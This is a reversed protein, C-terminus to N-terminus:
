YPAVGWNCSNTANASRLILVGSPDESWNVNLHGVYFHASNPDSVKFHIIWNFGTVDDPFAWGSAERHASVRVSEAIWGESDYGSASASYDTFHWKGSGDIIYRGATELVVTIDVDTGTCPNGWSYTETDTNSYEVVTAGENALAPVAGVVLFMAVAVLGIGHKRM